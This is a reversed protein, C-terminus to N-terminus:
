APPLPFDRLVEFAQSAGSGRTADFTTKVLSLQSVVWPSGQHGELGALLRELFGLDTIPTIRGLPLWPRFRRRDVAFGLRNVAPAISRAVDGLVEVDGVLKAWVSTDGPWELAAGGSFSVTPATPWRESLRTLASILHAADGRAVNGFLTVSLQLEPLPIRDLEEPRGGAAVVVADLEELLETPPVFAMSLLM